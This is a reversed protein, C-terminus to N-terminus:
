LSFQQSTRELPLASPRLASVVVQRAQPLTSQGPHRQRVTQLAGPFTRERQQLLPVRPARLVGPLAVNGACPQASQPCQGASSRKGNKKLDILLQKWNLRVRPPEPPTSHPPTPDPQYRRWHPHKERFDDKPKVEPNRNALIDNLEKVMQEIQSKTFHRCIWLVFRSVRAIQPM